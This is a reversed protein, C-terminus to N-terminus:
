RFHVSGPLKAPFGEVTCLSIRCEHEDLALLYLRQAPMMRCPEAYKELCFAPRASAMQLCYSPTLWNLVREWLLWSDVSGPRQEQTVKLPCRASYVRLGEEQCETEILKLHKEMREWRWEVKLLHWKHFADYLLLVQGMPCNECSFTLPNYFVDAALLWCYKSIDCGM